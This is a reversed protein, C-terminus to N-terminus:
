AFADAGRAALLRAVAPLDGARLAAVPTRGGLADQGALLFDLVSWGTAEGMGALVEPVGELVEGERFQVAPYAWDGRVRLALLRGAARRKDVAARGIGLLRGTAEASLLGGAAEALRTKAEAGRAVAAALPDLRRLAEAAAQDAAARALTGTDTAAALAAALAEPPAERAMREVAGIARRRFAERLPDTAAPTM